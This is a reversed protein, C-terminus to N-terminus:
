TIFIDNFKHYDDFYAEYEAVQANRLKHYVLPNVAYLWSKQSPEVKHLIGVNCLHLLHERQTRRQYKDLGETLFICDVSIRNIIYASDEKSLRRVKLRYIIKILTPLLEPRAM